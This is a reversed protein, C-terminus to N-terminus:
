IVFDETYRFIKKDRTVPFHISFYRSIVFGRTTISFLNQWERPIENYRPEVTVLKKREM